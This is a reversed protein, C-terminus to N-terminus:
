KEVVIAASADDPLQDDDDEAPLPSPPPMRINMECGSPSVEQEQCDDLLTQKM